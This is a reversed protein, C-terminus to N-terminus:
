KTRVHTLASRDLPFNPSKSFPKETKMVYQLSSGVAEVYFIYLTCKIPKMFHLVTQNFISIGYQAITM